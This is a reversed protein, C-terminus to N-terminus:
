GRRAKPLPEPAAPSRSRLVGNQLPRLTGILRTEACQMCARTGQLLVLFHLSAASQRRATM